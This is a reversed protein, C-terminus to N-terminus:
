SSSFVPRRNQPWLQITLWSRYPFTLIIIIENQFSVITIFLPSNTLFKNWKWGMHWLRPYHFNKAIRLWSILFIIGFSKERSLQGRFNTNQLNIVVKLTYLNQVSKVTVTTNIDIEVDMYFRIRKPTIVSLLSELFQFHCFIVRLKYIFSLSKIWKEIM